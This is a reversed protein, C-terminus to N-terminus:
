KGQWREGDEDIGGDFGRLVGKSGRLGDNLPGELCLFGKVWVLGNVRRVRKSFELELQMKEVFFPLTEV